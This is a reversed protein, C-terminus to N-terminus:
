LMYRFGPRVDIATPIKGPRTGGLTAAGSGNVAHEKELAEIKRNLRALDWRHSDLLM